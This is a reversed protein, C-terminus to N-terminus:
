MHMFIQDLSYDDDAKEFPHEWWIVKLIIPVPGSPGVLRSCLGTDGSVRCAVCHPCHVESKVLRAAIQDSAGSIQDSAGVGSKILSM